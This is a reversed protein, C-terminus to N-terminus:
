GSAQPTRGPTPRKSSQEAERRKWAEVIQDALRRAEADGENESFFFPAYQRLVGLHQALQSDPRLAAIRDRALRIGQQQSASLGWAEGHVSATFTALDSGDMIEALLRERFLALQAQPIQFGVAREYEVAAGLIQGQMARLALEARLAVPDTIELRQCMAVDRQMREYLQKYSDGPFNIRGRVDELGSLTEPSLECRRVLRLAFFADKPDVSRLLKDFEPPKPIDLLTSDIQM